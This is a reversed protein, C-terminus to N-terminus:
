RKTCLVDTYRGTSKVFEYFADATENRISGQEFIPFQENSGEGEKAVGAFAMHVCTMGVDFTERLAAIANDKTQLLKPDFEMMVYEVRGSRLLERAGQLVSTEFGQTDTKLLRVNEEGIHGEKCAVGADNEKVSHVEKKGVLGDVTYTQVQKEFVEDKRVDLCNFCTFDNREKHFKMMGNGREAGAAGDVLFMMGGNCKQNRLRDVNRVDPEVSVIWRAGRQAATSTVPYGGNAGIDIVGHQDLDGRLLADAVDRPTCVAAVLSVEFSSTSLTWSILERALTDARASPSLGHLTALLARTHAPSIPSTPLSPSSPSFPSFLFFVSFFLLFVCPLVFSRRVSGTRTRLSSFLRRLFPTSSTSTGKSLTAM